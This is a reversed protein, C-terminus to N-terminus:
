EPDQRAAASVSTERNTSSLPSAPPPALNARVDADVDRPVRECPQGLLAGRSLVRLVGAATRRDSGGLEVVSLRDRRGDKRPDGAVALHGPDDEARGAQRQINAARLPREGTRLAPSRGSRAALM